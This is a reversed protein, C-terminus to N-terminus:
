RQYEFKMHVGLTPNTYQQPLPSLRKTLALARQSALDLTLFGSQREVQVQEIVGDRRITFKMITTGIVGQNQEWHRHIIAVMQELYENCCFDVADVSVAGGAGGSSSLGFGQGRV